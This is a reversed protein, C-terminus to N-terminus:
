SQGHRWVQWCPPSPPLTSLIDCAQPRAGSRHAPAAAGIGCEEIFIHMSEIRSRGIMRRLTADAVTTGYKKAIAHTVEWYLPETDVMLGDMDFILTRVHM